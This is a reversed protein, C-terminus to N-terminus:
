VLWSSGNWAIVKALTSDMYHYGRDGTTLTPREATTGYGTGIANWTGPTGTAQNRWETINKERTPTTNRVTKGIKHTGSTPAATGYVVERSFSAATSKNGFETYTATSDFRIGFNSDDINGYVSIDTGFVNLGYETTNTSINAFVSAKIPYTSSVGTFVIASKSITDCDNVGITFGTGTCSLNIGNRFKKIISDSINIQNLTGYLRVADASYTDVSQSGNNQMENGTVKIRSYTNGAVGVEVGNSMVGSVILNDYAACDDAYLSIGSVIIGGDGDIINDHVFCFPSQIKVARKACRLFYNESINAHVATTYDQIVIADGDTIPGIDEFRNKTIVINTTTTTGSGLSAIVGRAIGTIPATIDHITCNEIYIGTGDGEIRIGVAFSTEGALQTINGIDCKIFRINDSGSAIGIGRLGKANGDITLGEITISRANVYLMPELKINCTITAGYGSVIVNPKNLNIYASILYSGPPLILVGGFASFSAIAATIAATWDSGVVLNSYKMVNIGRRDFEAQVAIDGYDTLLTPDLQSTGVAGVAIKPRTVSVDVLQTTGVSAAAMKALTVSMDNLKATTVALDAIKSTTVALEAIKATLVSLDALNVSGISGNAIFANFATTITQIYVNLYQFYTLRLAPDAVDGIDLNGTLALLTTNDINAVPTTM